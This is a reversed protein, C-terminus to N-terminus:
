GLLYPTHEPAVRADAVLAPRRCGFRQQRCTLREAFDLDQEGFDVVIGDGALFLPESRDAPFLELHAPKRGAYFLHSLRTRLFRDRGNTMRLSAVQFPSAARLGCFRRKPYLNDLHTMRLSAFFRKMPYLSDWQCLNKVGKARESHCRPPPRESHCSKPVRV